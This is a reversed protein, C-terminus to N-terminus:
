SPGPTLYAMFRGATIAGTWLLLSAVALGKAAFPIETAAAGPDYVTRRLRRAVVIAAAIFALKVFFVPTAGKTSADACFLLLGSMFSLAAGAWVARFVTSLPALPVQPAVGLLRLDLVASAGVLLSMGVTHATLVTPYAWLSSSERVWTSVAATELWLLFDHV